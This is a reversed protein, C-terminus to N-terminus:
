NKEDYYVSWMAYTGAIWEETESAPMTNLPEKKLFGFLGM